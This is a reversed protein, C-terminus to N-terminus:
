KLLYTFKLKGESNATVILTTQKEEVLSQWQYVIEGRTVYYWTTVPQGLQEILDSVLLDSDAEWTQVMSENLNLSQYADRQHDDRQIMVLKEEDKFVFHLEVAHYDAQGQYTDIFMGEIAQSKSPEGMVEHVEERSLSPFTEEKLLETFSIKLPELEYLTEVETPNFPRILELLKKDTLSENLTASEIEVAEEQATGIPVPKLFTALALLLCSICVLKREVIKTLGM